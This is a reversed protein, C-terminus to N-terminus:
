VISGELIVRLRARKDSKNHLRFTIRLGSSVVDFRVPLGGSFIVAEVAKDVMQAIAGIEISYVIFSELDGELKVCRVAFSERPQIELNCPGPYIFDSVMLRGEAQEWDLTDPIPASM